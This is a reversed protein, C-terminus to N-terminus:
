RGLYGTFLGQFLMNVRFLAVGMATGLTNFILDTSSSHRMPLYSQAFEISLSIGGGILLVLIYARYRSATERGLLLAFLLFGLPVFGAINIVVDKLYRRGLRFDKIFSSLLKREIIKLSAPKLLKRSQGAHDRIFEGGGENFLYLLAPDDAQLDGDGINRFHRGVQDASLSRNYVAVRKIKGFWPKQGSPSNGLVLQIPVSRQKFVPSILSFGSFVKQVRGDVYLKTGEPDSTVTLFRPRGM